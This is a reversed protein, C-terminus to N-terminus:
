DPSAASRGLHLYSASFGAAQCLGSWDIVNLRKGRTEILRDERLTRMTRNVHVVSLGLADGLEEQTPMHDIGGAGLGVARALVVLECLLHAVRAYASKRGMGVMWQRFIAADILSCRWFAAAIRPHREMLALLAAHPVFAVKGPQLMAVDHDMVDIHLSHLDPIDGNIHFSMIQRRGDSVFKQRCALGALLICCQSPRDGERVLAEGARTERLQAPLRSIAQLEDGTLDMATAIKRILAGAHQPPPNNM